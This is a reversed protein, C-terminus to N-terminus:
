QQFRCKAISTTNESDCWIVSSNEHNTGRKQTRLIMLEFHPNGVVGIPMKPAMVPVRQVPAFGGFQRVQSNLRMTTMASFEAWEKRRLSNPNRNGVVHDITTRFLGHRRETAGLSQHHRLIVTELIINRANCFEQFVEGNFRVDKEAVMIGPAGFAESGNAIASGRVMESTQEEKTTGMLVIVSFRTFNGLIRLFTAFDGYGVSDM